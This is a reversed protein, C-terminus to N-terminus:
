AESPVERKIDKLNITEEDRFEKEAEKLMIIEDIGNVGVMHGKIYAIEKKIGRIERLILTDNAEEM